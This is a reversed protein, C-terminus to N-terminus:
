NVGGSSTRRRNLLGLINVIETHGNEQALDIAGKFGKEAVVDGTAGYNLLLQVTDLRGHEAAGEVATPGDKLAPKGNVQAGKGWLYQVILINGAIAAGQIATIGGCVGAAANVGAGDDVLYKLLDMNPSLGSSSAQLATRGHQYAKGLRGNPHSVKAGNELLLMDLNGSYRASQLATREEHGFAPTNVDAGRDILYEASTLTELSAAAQLPSLREGVVNIPTGRDVLLAITEVEKGLVAKELAELSFQDLDVGADLLECILDFSGNGVAYLLLNPINVNAGANLLLQSICIATEKDCCAAALLPPESLTLGNPDVGWDLLALTTHLTLSTGITVFGKTTGIKELILHYVDRCDAGKELLFRAMELQKRFVARYLPTRTRGFREYNNFNISAGNEVLVSAAKVNSTESIILLLHGGSDGSLCEPDVRSFLLEVFDSDTIKIAERIVPRIHTTATNIRLFSDLQPTHNQDIVWQLFDKIRDKTPKNNSVFFAVPKFLRQLPYKYSPDFFQQVRMVLEGGMNVNVNGGFDLGLSVSDPSTPTNVRKSAERQANNGRRRVERKVRERDIPRGHLCVGSDIGRMARNRVEEVVAIWEHTKLNKYGCFRRANLGYTSRMHAMTAELTHNQDVYQSLIEAEYHEWNIATDVDQAM